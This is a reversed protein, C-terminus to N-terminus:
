NKRQHCKRSRIVECKKCVRRGNANAEPLVHGRLCHTKRHHRGAMGNSRHVHEKRTLPDLHDPNVCWTNDCTHHLEKGAPVPGVTIEYLLVHARVTKHAVQILGYGQNHRAATWEWCGNPLVKVKEMFRVLLPKPNRTHQNGKAHM